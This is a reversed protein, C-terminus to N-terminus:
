AKWSVKYESPHPLRAQPQQIKAFDYLLKRLFRTGRSQTAASGTIIQAGESRWRDLLARGENDIQTVATIDVMLQAGHVCSAATRWVQAVDRVSHADLEGSLELRFADSNDHIYYRLKRHSVQMGPHTGRGFLNVIPTLQKRDRGGISPNVIRSRSNFQSLLFGITRQPTIANPIITGTHEQVSVRLEAGTTSNVVMGGDRAPPAAFISGISPM